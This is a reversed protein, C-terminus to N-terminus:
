QPEVFQLAVPGTFQNQSVTITSALPQATYGEASFQVTYKGPLLYITYDDPGTTTTQFVVKNAGLLVRVTYVGTYSTVIQTCFEGPACYPVVIPQVIIGSNSSNSPAAFSTASMTISMTFGLISGLIVSSKIFNHVTKLIHKTIM